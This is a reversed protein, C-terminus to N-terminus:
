RDQEKLWAAQDNNARPKTKKPKSTREIFGGISPIEAKPKNLYKGVIFGASVLAIAAAIDM